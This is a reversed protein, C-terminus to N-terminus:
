ASVKAFASIPPLVSELAKASMLVGPIGAGPHTGAGVMFLGAVDESRNHPRFWASQLLLPELGFAAGKHSWLRDQFDQPTMVKSVVVHNSLGPMLTSELRRQIAQRYAAATAAWDTGSDLHPVPSLAYFTDCGTPAMSLDSATPRHLYLSFDSALHHRRFIDHLLGEYRPGLLMTHHPVHDFRRNLGFYWVFLSMSYRARDLKRDTWVRRHEPAILHRYTWATDANSVVIDADIHEGNTLRVGRARGGEVVIREVPANCRVGVGLRGLLGVLGRVLAGTGGMAWHVGFRRELMNILSYTCTVSSPNGGILLPQLSFAIRLKPHRFHREVMSRMTRWSRMKVLAPVAAVLDGFSDFATAGLEEFGIRYCREAEAMFREYGALDSADIRAVEARMHEPQGSYDFWSGDDFRIRYFPDLPKLTVDDALRAGALTWLEEFLQPVTVITPGMDFTFGDQRHVYARGGPADLKELVQVRWGRCALRVAAALGGFGAGIVLATPAGDRALLRGPPDSKM